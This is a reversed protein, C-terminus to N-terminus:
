TICALKLMWDENVRMFWVFAFIRISLAIGHAPTLPRKSDLSQLTGMGFVYLIDTKAHDAPTTSQIVVVVKRPRVSSQRLTVFPRFGYRPGYLQTECDSPAEPTVSGGVTGDWRTFGICKMLYFHAQKSYWGETRM